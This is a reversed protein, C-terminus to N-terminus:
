AGAHHSTLSSLNGAAIEVLVRSFLSRPVVYDCGIVRAERILETQVHSIFGVIPTTSLVPRAKWLKVLALADLGNSNLDLILLSPPEAKALEESQELSKVFLIQSGAAEAAAKIKAAFFMDQVAIAIKVTGPM